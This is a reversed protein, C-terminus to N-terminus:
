KGTNTQTNQQRDTKLKFEAFAFDKRNAQEAPNGIVYGGNENMLNLENYGAAYLRFVKVQKGLKIVPSTYWEGNMYRNPWNNYLLNGDKLEAGDVWKKSWVTTWTTGDDELVDIHWEDNNTWFVYGWGDKLTLTQYEFAIIGTEKPMTFKLYHENGDPKGAVFTKAEGDWLNAIEGDEAMGVYEVKEASLDEYKLLPTYKVAYIFESGAEAVTVDEDDSKIKIPIASVEDFTLAQKRITIGFKQEKDGKNFYLTKEFSYAEEGMTKLSTNNAKNYSELAEPSLAVQIEMDEVAEFNLSVTQEFTYTDGGDSFDVEEYKYGTKELRVTISTMNIDLVMEDKNKNILKDEGELVLPLIYHVDEEGENMAILRKVANIDFVIKVIKYEEGDSFNVDRDLKYCGSPIEVVTWGRLSAFQELQKADYGSLTVSVAKKSDYGGKNITLDIERTDGFVLLDRNVIGSESFYVINRFEDDIYDGVKKECGCLLSMIGGLIVASIATHKM